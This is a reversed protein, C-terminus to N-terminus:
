YDRLRTRIDTIPASPLGPQRRRSEAKSRGSGPTDRITERTFEILEDARIQQVTDDFHTDTAVFERFCATVSQNLQVQKSHSLIRAHAVNTGAFIAAGIM